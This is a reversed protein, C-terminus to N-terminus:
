FEILIYPEDKSKIPRIIPDFGTRQFKGEYKIKRFCKRYKLPVEVIDGSGSFVIENTKSNKVEILFAAPRTEIKVVNLNKCSTFIIFFLIFPILNSKLRM